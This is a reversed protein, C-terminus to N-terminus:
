DNKHSRQREKRVRESEKQRERRYKELDEESPDEFDKMWIKNM